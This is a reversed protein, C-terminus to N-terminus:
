RPDPYAGSGAYPNNSMGDIRQEMPREYVTAPEPLAPGTGSRQSRETQRAPPAELDAMRGCASASLATLAALGAVISKKM